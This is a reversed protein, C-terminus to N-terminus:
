FQVLATRRERSPPLTVSVKRDMGEAINISSLTKGSGLGYFLLIGRYPSKDQIFDSIFQQHKFLSVKELSKTTENYKNSKGRSNLNSKVLPNFTNTVFDLFNKGSTLAWNNTEIRKKVEMDFLIPVQCQRENYNKINDVFMGLRNIQEDIESKYKNYFAHEDKQNVDSANALAQYYQIANEYKNISLLDYDIARNIYIIKSYIDKSENFLQYYENSLDHNEEYIAKIFKLNPFKLNKSELNEKNFKAPRIKTAMFDRPYAIEIPFLDDQNPKYVRIQNTIGKRLIERDSM